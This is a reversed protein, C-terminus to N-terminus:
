KKMMHVQKHWAHHVINETMGPHESPWTLLSEPSLKTPTRELDKATPDYTLFPSHIHKAIVVRM